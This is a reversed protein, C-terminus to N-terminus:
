RWWRPIVRGTRRMYDRYADGFQEVLMREERPIRYVVLPLLTVLMSLGAIWNWLLLPQALGWLGHAAYMPHRMHGFVGQTVLTHEQRVQLHPSWNHGLDAHSRWLLWLAAAFLAAGPWGAWGPLAYDAFGLWGTLAYILPLILMGLSPLATFLRDLGTELDRAPRFQRYRRTYVIRIASGIVLGVFYLITFFTSSM